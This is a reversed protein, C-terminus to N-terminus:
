GALGSVIKPMAYAGPGMRLSASSVDTRQLFFWIGWAQGGNSAMAVLVEHEGKDSSFKVCADDPMAPNTGEPDHYSMAGDIWVKIPGDYGINAVLKMSETCHFRCRFYILTDEPARASLEDHRSLFEQGFRMPRLPVKGAAAYSLDGLKGASPLVDSIDVDTVFSTRAMPTGLQVPGFVPLSRDAKDVINCYPNAGMGYYVAKTGIDLKLVTTRIIARNGDLDVRYFNENDTSDRLSFGTPRGQSTLEGVVNDFSVVVDVCGSSANRELTIGGLEIPVAEPRRKGRQWAPLLGHMAGALRVGLRCQSAGRIHISDELELDIAPVAALHPIRKRLIRQQEQVRNWDHPQRGDTVRSLQV